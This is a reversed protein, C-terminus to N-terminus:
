SLSSLEDYMIMWLLKKYVELENLNELSNEGYKNRYKLFADEIGYDKIIHKANIINFDFKIYENLLEYRDGGNLLDYNNLTVFEQCYKTNFLGEM